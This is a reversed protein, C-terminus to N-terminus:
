LETFSVSFKFKKATRNSKTHFDIGINKAFKSLEKLQKNGLSYKKYFREAIPNKKFYNKLYLSQPTWSQLKVCDCGSQHAMKIMKKAIKLDGFHSTNLEAIYYPRNLKSLLKNKKKM